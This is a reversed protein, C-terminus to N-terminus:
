LQRQTRRRIAVFTGGSFIVVLAVVPWVQGSSFPTQGVSVAQFGVATPDTLGSLTWSGGGAGDGFEGTSVFEADGICLTWNGVALLGDFTALGGDAPPGTGSDPSYTCIGDGTCIDSGPLGMDEASTAAGDVFTLPVGVADASNGCCGGTTDDATENHGPRSWITVITGDPGQLKAVTDGIYVHYVNLELSLSGPTVTSGPPLDGTNDVTSCAMTPNGLVGLSGDYTSDPILGGPGGTLALTVGVIVLLLVVALILAYKKRKIVIKAEKDQFWVM